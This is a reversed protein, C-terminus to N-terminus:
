RKKNNSIEYVLAILSVILMCFQLLQEWRIYEMFKVERRFLPLFFINKSGRESSTVAVTQYSWM